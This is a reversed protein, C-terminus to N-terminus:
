QLELPHSGAALSIEASKESPGHVSDHSILLEDNLWLKSGDDSALWIKLEGEEAMQLDGSFVIGYQQNRERIVKTNFLEIYGEKVPQLTSFDPLEQWDDGTNEYYRYTMNGVVVPENNYNQAKLEPTLYSVDAVAFQGHDPILRISWQQEDNLPLTIDQHILNQNLYIDKLQVMKQQLDAIAKISVTQWVVAKRNSTNYPKSIISDRRFLTGAINEEPLNSLLLQYDDYFQLAFSADQNLAFTIKIDLDLYQWDSKLRANESNGSFILVSKEADHLILKETWEPIKEQSLHWGDPLNTEESFEWQAWAIPENDSSKITVISTKDKCASWFGVMLIFLFIKKM